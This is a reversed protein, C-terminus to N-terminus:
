QRADQRELPAQWALLQADATILLAGLKLAAAAIWRDAPDAHLGDLEAGAIALDGDLAFEELGNELWTRRWASASQPLSLRGRRQLMAVEWFSIASVGVGQESWAQQLLARAQSGLREPALSCWVLVHTDLVIVAAAREL